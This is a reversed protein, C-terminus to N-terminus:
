QKLVRWIHIGAFLFLGYKVIKKGDFRALRSFMHIINITRISDDRMIKTETIGNSPWNEFIATFYCLGRTRDERLYQRMAWFSFMACVMLGNPDM